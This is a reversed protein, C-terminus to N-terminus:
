LHNQPASRSSALSQDVASSTVVCRSQGRHRNRACAGFERCGRQARLHDKLVDVGHMYEFLSLKQSYYEHPSCLAGRGARVPVRALHAHSHAKALKPRGAIASECPGASSQMRCFTEPAVLVNVMMSASIAFTKKATQPTTERRGSEWRARQPRARQVSDNKRFCGAM